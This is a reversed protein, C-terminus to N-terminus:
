VPQVARRHPEQDAGRRIRPPTPAVLAQNLSKFGTALAKDLSAQITKGYAAQAAHTKALAEAAARAADVDRMHELIEERWHQYGYGGVLLATGVVLVLVAERRVGAVQRLMAGKTDVSKVLDAWDRAQVSVMPLRESIKYGLEQSTTFINPTAHLSSIKADQELENLLDEEALIREGHTPVLADVSTVMWYRGNPLPEIVVWNTAQSASLSGSSENNLFVEHALALMAAASPASPKKAVGVALAVSRQSGSQMVLGYKTRKYKRAVMAVARSTSNGQVPIQEWELGIVVDHKGLRVVEM